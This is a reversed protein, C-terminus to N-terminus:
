FVAVGVAFLGTMWPTTVPDTQILAILFFMLAIQFVLAWSRRQGLMRTLVPISCGDVYPAWLFKFSYPLRVLSFLAIDTKSVGKDTLWFALTSFILVLPLGSFFGLVFMVIMKPNRYVGLSPIWGPM